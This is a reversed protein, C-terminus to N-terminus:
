SVMAAPAHEPVFGHEDWVDIYEKWSGYQVVLFPDRTKTLEMVCVKADPLRKKLLVARHLVASPINGQYEKVARTIWEANPLMGFLMASGAIFLAGVVAIAGADRNGPVSAAIIGTVVMVMGSIFLASITRAPSRRLIRPTRQRIAAEKYREVSQLTFPQIGEEALVRLLKGGCQRKEATRQEPTTYGLLRRAEEALLDDPAALLREIVAADVPQRELVATLEAM